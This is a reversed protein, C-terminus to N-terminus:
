EIDPGEAVAFGMVGFIATIEDIVQSVPHIRGEGTPGVPVPLTVDLREAALRASLAAAELEAKRASLADTVRAKLGNLAPGMVQREEASMGGLTKMLESVSGKKGMAGVRVAELAAEDSAAAIAAAIQAELADLPAATDTM